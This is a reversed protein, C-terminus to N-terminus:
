QRVRVTFRLSEEKGAPVDIKWSASNADRSESNYNQELIEWDGPISEMVKILVNQASANRLTVEYGAEFRHAQRNDGDLRTFHVFRQEATLDFSVGLQSRFTEGAPVAPLRAEGVFRPGDGNRRYFRITGAPLPMGLNNDERNIVTLFTRVPLREHEETSRIPGSTVDATVEYSKVCNIDAASLLRTQKSHNEMLDAHMEPTYIHYDGGDDFRQMDGAASEARMMALSRIPPRSRHPTGAVLYLKADLYDVGSNNDIKAWGTLRLSTDDDSLLAVYDAEWSLGETLYALEVTAPQSSQSDLLVSLLPRSLLGPPLYPFQVRGPFDTEIHDGMQLILDNGSVALVVAPQRIEEGNTPNIRVAEVDHGIFRRALAEPTLLNGAFDIELVQMPNATDSDLLVTEPLLKQSVDHFFLRNKGPSIPLSRKETVQAYGDQYVYLTLEQRDAASSITETVAFAVSPTLCSLVVIFWLAKKM